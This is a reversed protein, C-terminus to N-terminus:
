GKVEMLNPLLSESGLQQVHCVSRKALPPPAVNEGDRAIVVPPLFPVGSVVVGLMATAESPVM